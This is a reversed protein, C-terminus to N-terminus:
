TVLCWTLAFDHGLNLSLSGMPGKLDSISNMILLTEIAMYKRGSLKQSDAIEKNCYRCSIRSKAYQKPDGNQMHCQGRDNGHANLLCDTWLGTTRSKAAVGNQRFAVLNFCIDM